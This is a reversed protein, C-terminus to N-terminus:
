ESQPATGSSMSRFGEVFISLVLVSIGVLLALPNIPLLKMALYILVALVGFKLMLLVVIMAQKPASGGAAITQVLRRLAYFNATGFLGGLAVGLTIGTDWLLLSALTMVGLLLLSIREIRQIAPVKM